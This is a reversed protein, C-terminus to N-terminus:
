GGRAALSAFQAMEQARREEYEEPSETTSEGPLPANLQTDLDERAEDDGANEM